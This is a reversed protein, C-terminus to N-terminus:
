FNKIKNLFSLNGLRLKLNVPKTILDCLGYLITYVCHYIFCDDFILHCSLILKFYQYEALLAVCCM